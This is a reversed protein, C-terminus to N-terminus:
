DLVHRRGERSSQIIADLLRQNIFGDMFQPADKREGEQIMGIFDELQNMRYSEPVSWTEFQSEWANEADRPLCIRLEDPRECNVQITGEDGYLTVQQHNGYGFANRTTMFHGVVEGELEGHFSVYDDVDVARMSGSKVDRREPIFTSMLGQVSTFEGVFYRACDIMHAGLDGLAGSGSWEESFRWTHPTNFMPAGWQQLYEVQIHRITGLKGQELLAKAYRFAAVYRYSFGVMCVIPNQDYQEKLAVAEEFTVTFPKETMIPKQHAICLSIVPAHFKNPTISIVADVQESAILGEVETFQQESPISLKAGTEALLEANVDCIATVEAHDLESLLRIHHNAMGGLGIVGFRIKTSM